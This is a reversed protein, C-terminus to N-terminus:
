SYMTIEEEIAKVAFSQELDSLMFFYEKVMKVIVAKTIEPTIKITKTEAYKELEDVIRYIMAEWQDAMAWAPQNKRDAAIEILRAKAFTRM